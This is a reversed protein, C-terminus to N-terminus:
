ELDNLVANSGNVTTIIKRVAGWVMMATGILTLAQQVFLVISEVLLPFDVEPFFHTAFTVVTLLIGRLTLSFKESNKSSYVIWSIVKNM